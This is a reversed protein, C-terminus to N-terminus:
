CLADYLNHFPNHAAETSAPSLLFCAEIAFFRKM